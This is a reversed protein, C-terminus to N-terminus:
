VHIALLNGFTADTAGHGNTERQIFGEVDALVSARRHALVVVNRELEGALDLFDDDVETFFSPQWSARSVTVGHFMFFILFWHEIDSISERGPRAPLLDPWTRWAASLPLLVPVLDHLGQSGTMVRCHLHDISGDHARVM